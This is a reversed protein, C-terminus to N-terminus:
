PHHYFGDQYYHSSPRTSHPNFRPEPDSFHMNITGDPNFADLSAADSEGSKLPPPGNRPDGPHYAKYSQPQQRPPLFQQMLRQQQHTEGKSSVTGSRNAYSASQECQHGSSSSSQRAVVPLESTNDASISKSRFMRQHDDRSSIAPAPATKITATYNPYPHFPQQRHHHHRQHDMKTSAKRNEEESPGNFSWFVRRDPNDM